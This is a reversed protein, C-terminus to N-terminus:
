LTFELYKLVAQQLLPRCISAALIQPEWIEFQRLAQEAFMQYGYIVSCGQSAADDLFTTRWPLTRVDMVAATPLFDQSEMPPDCPMCNILIDYGEVACAHLTSIHKVHIGSPLHRGKEPHRALCTVDAGRSLAMVGLAKASGGLGLILVRRRQLSTCAEIVDCGGAGDTNWGQWTQQHLLLTNAAGCMKATEDIDDLFEMVKEKLPMTVSLGRFPLKKAMQLFDGLHEQSVPIKVYLADLERKQFIHNHTHHSISLTVPNGILAFLSTAPSLTTYHYDQLLSTLPIQGPAVPTGIGTYTWPSTGLIPGVLRSLEGHPGMSIALVNPYQQAWTLLKLTDLISHATLALKYLHAPKTRMKLYLADLFQPTESWNHHSIILKVQPYYQTLHTIWADPLHDELDLYDPQLDALSCLDKLLDDWNTSSKSRFTFIVPLLVQQCVQRLMELDWTEFLDLRLEILDAHKKAEELEEYIRQLTPGQIVVCIM